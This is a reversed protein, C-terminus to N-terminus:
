VVVTSIGGWCVNQVRFGLNVIVKLEVFSVKILLESLELTLEESFGWFTFQFTIPVAEKAFFEIAILLFVILSVFIHVTEHTDEDFRFFFLVEFSGCVSDDVREFDDERYVLYAYEVAPVTIIAALPNRANLSRDAIRRNFIVIIYLPIKSLALKPLDFKGNM